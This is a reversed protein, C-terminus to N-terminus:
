ALAGGMGIQREAAGRKGETVKNELEECKSAM